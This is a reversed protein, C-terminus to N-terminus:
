SGPQDPRVDRAASGDGGPHLWMTHVFGEPSAAVAALCPGGTDIMQVRVSGAGSGPLALEQGAPCSFTHMERALGIGAAKLFAEKRVWLALLAPGAATEGLSRIAALEADTAVREAIEPLMGARNSPEIDVGVPGQARYAFAVFDDTHSLSTSAVGDGLRPCGLPDRGLDVQGPGVRLVSALFLRHLAYSLTLADRDSARRRRSVREREAPDLLVAAQDLWPRWAVLGAIAVLTGGPALAAESPTGFGRAFASALDVALTAAEETSGPDQVRLTDM